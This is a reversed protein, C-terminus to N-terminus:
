HIGYLSEQMLAEFIAYFPSRDARLGDVPVPPVQFRQVIPGHILIHANEFVGAAADFFEGLVRRRPVNGRSFIDVFYHKRSVPFLHIQQHHEIVRETPDAFDQAQLPLVDIKLIM